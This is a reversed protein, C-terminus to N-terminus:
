CWFFFNSLVTYICYLIIQNLRFKPCNSRTTKEEWCSIVSPTFVVQLLRRFNLSPNIRLFSFRYNIKSLCQKTLHHCRTQPGKKDHRTQKLPFFFLLCLFMTVNVSVWGCIFFLFYFFFFVCLASHFNFHKILFFFFFWPMLKSKVSIWM